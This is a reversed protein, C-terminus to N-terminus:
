RILRQNSILIPKTMPLYQQLKSLYAISQQLHTCCKCTSQRPIINQYSIWHIYWALSCFTQIHQMKTSIQSKMDNKIFSSEVILKCAVYTTM